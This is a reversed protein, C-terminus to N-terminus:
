NLFNFLSLETTQAFSRQFAELSLLQQKLRTIAENYDLDQLDSLLSRTRLQTDELLDRQTEVANQEGGITAQASIFGLELKDLEALGRQLQGPEEPTNANIADALKSLGAQTLQGAADVDSATLVPVSAAVYREINMQVTDGVNFQRQGFDIDISGDANATQTM